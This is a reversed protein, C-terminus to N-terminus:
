IIAFIIGELDVFKGVGLRSINFTNGKYIIQIQKTQTKGNRELRSTLFIKM